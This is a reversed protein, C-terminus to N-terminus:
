KVAAARIAEFYAAPDGLTNLNVKFADESLLHDCMTM